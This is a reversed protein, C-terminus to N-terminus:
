EAVEALSEIMRSGISDLAESLPKPEVYTVALDYNQTKKIAHVGEMWDGTEGLFEMSFYHILGTSSNSGAEETIVNSGTGIFPNLVTSPWGNLIINRRSSIFSAMSDGWNWYIEVAVVQGSTPNEFSYAFNGLTDAKSWTSPYDLTLDPRSDRGLYTISSFQVSTTPDLPAVDDVDPIGDNDDDTDDQVCTVGDVLFLAGEASLPLCDDSDDTGDGDDDRDMADPILDSDTDLYNTTPRRVHSALSLDSLARRTNSHITINGVSLDPDGAAFSFAARDNQGPGQVVLVALTPGSVGASRFELVYDHGTPVVLSFAATTTENARVTGTEDLAVVTVAESLAAVTVSASTVNELKGSITVTASDGADNDSSGGGGGGGGCAPLGFLVLLASLTLLTITKQTKM